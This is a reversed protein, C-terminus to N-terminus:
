PAPALRALAGTDFGRIIFWLALVMEQVALPVVLVIAVTDPVDAFLVAVALGGLVLASAVGWGSIWRPVLSSQWLMWNLMLMGTVFVLNYFSGSVGSWADGGVLTRAFLRLPEGDAPPAAIYAESLALVLMKDIEQSAFLAAEFLRFAVYGIALMTSVRCLVPYLVIAILPIALVCSFEILLGSVIQTRAAGATALADPASLPPGYLAQGVFLFATAIIFLIGAAIAHGRYTQPEEM